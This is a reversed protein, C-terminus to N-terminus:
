RKAVTEEEEKTVTWLETTAHSFFVFSLETHDAITIFEIGSAWVSAVM